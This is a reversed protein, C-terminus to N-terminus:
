PHRPKRSFIDHFVTTLQAARYRHIQMRGLLLAISFFVFPLLAQCLAYIATVRRDYGSSLAVAETTVTTLRGGGLMLTPLYQALSVSIGVAWAYLLAPFLLPLKIKWFIQWESKGLSRAIKSFNSNYSQWPGSLALYVLPFAFFTHAWVVWLTYAQSAILLTLVQIGFLLSLQPLLMPLAIIYVPIARQTHLRYEQALIGLLLALSGSGLALLVSTEMNHLVNPWEDYWFQGTWQTPFLDPFRWRQALSWILTLPIMAGSITFLLALLSKHPLHLSYRGSSQWARYGRTFLWEFAVIAVLVMSALLLLVVAGSAARPLLNLNPENFWQWVLVSFTPPTNPGLVLSFDVVSIAYAAVAFLTFRIKRLWQPFIIKWWMQPESYGLSASLMKMKTLNLQQLIPLSILLIFPVEKLALAITLGIAYPDHVLWTVDHSNDRFEFGHYLLRALWGTSAFLFAFGIAFAVHPLALLISLSNEIRKWRPHFWFRQLIAFSIFLALYTSILTSTVSLLLAHEVGQWQWVQSFGQWSLQHHGLAPLYGSASIVVGALGPLIPAVCLLILGWYATRLM